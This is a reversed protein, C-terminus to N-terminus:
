APEGSLSKVMHKALMDFDVPYSNNRIANRIADVRSRDIPAGGLTGTSASIEVSDAATASSATSADTSLASKTSEAKSSKRSGQDIMTLNQRIGHTM